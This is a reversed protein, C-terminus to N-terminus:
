FNPLSGGFYMVNCDLLTFVEDVIRRFGSNEKRNNVAYKANKKHRQSGVCKM